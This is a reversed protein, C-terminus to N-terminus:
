TLIELVLTLQIFGSNGHGEGNREPGFGLLIGILLFVVYTAIIIIPYYRPHIKM